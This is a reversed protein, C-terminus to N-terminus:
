AEAQPTSVTETAEESKRRKKKKESIVKALTEVMFQQSDLIMETRKTEMQRQMQGIEKVMDIKMKEMREFGERFFKIASIVEQLPDSSHGQRKGALQGWKSGEGDSNVNKSPKFKERGTTPIKIRFGGRGRNRTVTEAGIGNPYYIHCGSSQADARVKKRNRPEPYDLDMDEDEDDDDDDDDDDSGSRSRDMAEM